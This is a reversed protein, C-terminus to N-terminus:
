FDEKFKTFTKVETSKVSVLEVNYVYGQDENGIRYIKFRYKNGDLLEIFLTVEKDFMKLLLKEYDTKVSLLNELTALRAVDTINNFGEIVERIFIYSRITELTFRHNYTLKIPDISTLYM